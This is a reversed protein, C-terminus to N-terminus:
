TRVSPHPLLAPMEVGAKSAGYAAMGTPPMFSIASSVVMADGRSRELHPTAYNLTRFAGNLNIDLGQEFSADGTQRVTGYAAVGANAVIIGVDGMAQASDDIASKPAAGNRM